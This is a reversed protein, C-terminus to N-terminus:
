KEAKEELYEEQDTDGGLLGVGGANRPDLGVTDGERRQDKECGVIQFAATDSTGPVVAGGSVDGRL